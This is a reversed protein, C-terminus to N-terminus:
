GEVLEPCRESHKSRLMLQYIALQNIPLQPDEGIALKGTTQKGIGLAM